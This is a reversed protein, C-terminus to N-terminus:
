AITSGDRLDGMSLQHLGNGVMPPKQNKLRCCPAQWPQDGRLQVLGVDLDAAQLKAEHDLSRMAGVHGAVAAIVTIAGLPWSM